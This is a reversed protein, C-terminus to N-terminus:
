APTNRFSHYFLLSALTKGDRIAGAKIMELLRSWPVIESSIKESEDLQQGVFDLNRAIFAYMAENCFGPSTYFNTLPLIEAARYGTEEILERAATLEPAEHPEITGAPLEWLVEGTAFRENRIMVVSDADLLPLIVVAGPHIVVERQILRGDEEIIEYRRVDFRRGHFELASNGILTKLNKAVQDRFPPQNM